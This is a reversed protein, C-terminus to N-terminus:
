YGWTELSVAVGVGRKELSTRLEPPVRTVNLPWNKPVVGGVDSAIVIPDRIQMEGVQIESVSTDHTVGGTGVSPDGTISRGIVTMTLPCDEPLVGSPMSVPVAPNRYPITSQL